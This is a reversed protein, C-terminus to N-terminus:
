ADLLISKMDPESLHLISTNLDPRISSYSLYMHAALHISYLAEINRPLMIEEHWCTLNKEDTKGENSGKNVCKQM